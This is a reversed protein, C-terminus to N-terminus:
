TEELNGGTSLVFLLREPPRGSDKTGKYYARLITEPQVVWFREKEIQKPVHIAAGASYGSVASEAFELTAAARGQEVPSRM